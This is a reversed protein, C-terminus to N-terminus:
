AIKDNNQRFGSGTAEGGLYVGLWDLHLIWQSASGM